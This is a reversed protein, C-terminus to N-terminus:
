IQKNQMNVIVIITYCLITAPFFKTIEFNQRPFSWRISLVQMMAPPFSQHIM